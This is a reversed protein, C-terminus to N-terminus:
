GFFNDVAVDFFVGENEMGDMWSNATDGMYQQWDANALNMVWYPDQHWVRHTPEVVDYHEFMAEKRSDSVNNRAIWSAWDTDWEKVYGSPSVAFVNATHPAPTDTYNQPNLGVALHYALVLFNPNAARYVAAQDKWIKQTGVFNRAAFARHAAPVGFSADSPILFVALVALTAGTAPM